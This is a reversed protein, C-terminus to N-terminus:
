FMKTVITRWYINGKKEKFLLLDFRDSDDYLLSPGSCLIIKGFTNFFYKKRKYIKKYSDPLLEKALQIIDNDSVPPTEYAEIEKIKSYYNITENEFKVEKKFFLLLSLFIKEFINFGYVSKIRPALINSVLKIIKFYAGKILNKNINANTKLNNNNLYTLKWKQPKRKLM